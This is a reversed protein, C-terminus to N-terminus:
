RVQEIELKLQENGAIDAWRVTPVELAFQRLGTPRIRARAAALTAIYADSADPTSGRTTYDCAAIRTMSVLDGATFAHTRRSVTITIASVEISRNM